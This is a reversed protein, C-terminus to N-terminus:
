ATVWWPTQLPLLLMLLSPPSVVLAVGIRDALLVSQALMTPHEVVEEVTVKVGARRTYFDALQAAAALSGWIDYFRTTGKVDTSGAAAPELVHDWARVVLEKM